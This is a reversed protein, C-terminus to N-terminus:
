TGRIRQLTRELTMSMASLRDLMTQIDPEDSSTRLLDKRAHALTQHLGSPLSPDTLAMFSRKLTQLSNLMQLLSDQTSVLSRAEEGLGPITDQEHLAGSHLRHRRQYEILHPSLDRAFM